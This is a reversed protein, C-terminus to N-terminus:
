AITNEREWNEIDYNLQNLTETFHEMEDSTLLDSININEKVLNLQNKYVEIQKFTFSRNIAYVVNM